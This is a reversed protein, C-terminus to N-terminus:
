AKERQAGSIAAGVKRMIRTRIEADVRKMLSGRTDYRSALPKLAAYREQRYDAWDTGKIGEPYAIGCGLKEAAERAAQIGPNFGRKEETAYDNDAAIVRLGTPVEVHALNGANWAVVVRAITMAQFLALGTAFGECVITITARPRDIRYSTGGVSAGKWFRKTGDPAIRQITAVADGRYSPIILWGERDVRLGYCGRIDLGHDDLYRHSHRLPEAARYYQRAAETAQRMAAVAEERARRAATHDIPRFEVPGESRWTVPSTHVAWDQVWGIGGDPSLCYAGNKKRPHSQTSCRRWKGDPLIVGPKLGLQHLFGEFDHISM